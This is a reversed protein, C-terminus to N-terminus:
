YSTIRVAILVPADCDGSGAPSLSWRSERGQEWWLGATPGISYTSAGSTAQWAGRLALLVGFAAPELVTGAGLVKTESHCSARRTMVNFDHSEGGLLECDVCAEGPFSYPQWRTDLRHDIGREDARMRVGKGSLLMITRDVGEFASFPASAAITAISVRWHFSGLDSGPPWSAIERMMGRGNKWPTNPVLQTNFEHVFM